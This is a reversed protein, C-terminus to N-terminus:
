WRRVWGTTSCYTSLPRALLTAESYIGSSRVSVRGGWGHAGRLRGLRPDDGSIEDIVRDTLRALVVVDDLVDHNGSSNSQVDRARLQVDGTHPNQPHTDITSTRRRTGPRLPPPWETVPRQPGVIDTGFPM